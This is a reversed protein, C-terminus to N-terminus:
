EKKAYTSSLKFIDGEEDFDETSYDLLKFQTSKLYNEIEEKSVLAFFQKYKRNYPEPIVKEGQGELMGLFLIGNPKLLEHFKKIVALHKERPIHILVFAAWIADFKEKLTINEIDMVLFEANLVKQKAFDIMKESLDIGSVKHGADAFRKAAQGPGCGADLIKSNGPVLALFKEYHKEMVQNEFEHSVYDKVTANYTEILMKKNDM